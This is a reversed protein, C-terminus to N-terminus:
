PKRLLLYAITFEESAKAWPNPQREVNSIQKICGKNERIKRTEKKILADIAETANEVPVNFVSEWEQKEAIDLSASYSIFSQHLSIIFFM